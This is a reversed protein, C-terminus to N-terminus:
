RSDLFLAGLTQQDPLGTQPLGRADQFARMATVTQPPYDGTMAGADYGLEILRSKALILVDTYIIVSAADNRLVQALSQQALRQPALRDAIQYFATLFTTDAPLQRCASVLIALMTETTQWSAFDFTNDTFQNFGTVYGEIWGGYLAIDPSQTDFADLFRECSQLGGGKIAFKGNQDAAFAASCTTLACILGALHMKM